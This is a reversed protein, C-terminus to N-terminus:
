DLRSSRSEDVGDDRASWGCVSRCRTAWPRFRSPQKWSTTSAFRGCTSGRRCGARDPAAIVNERLPISRPRPRPRQRGPGTAGPRLDRRRDRARRRVRPRAARQDLTRRDGQPRGHEGARLAAGACGATGPVLLRPRWPSPHAFEKILADGLSEKLEPSLESSVRRRVAVDRGTEHAEPKPRGAKKAPSSGKAPLLFPALRRHIEEHHPRQLGAAVRRWLIWWEAWCQVDKIHKVGQHFIPWLAKIRIDDLPFGRGPDSSSVQSTSGARNM